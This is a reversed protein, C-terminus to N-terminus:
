AIEGDFEEAVANYADTGVSCGTGIAAVLRLAVCGAECVQKQCESAGVGAHGDDDFLGGAVVVEEFDVPVEAAGCGGM